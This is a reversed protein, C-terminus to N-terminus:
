RGTIEQALVATAGIDAFSGTYDAENKRPRRIAYANPNRVTTNRDDKYADHVYAPNRWDYCFESASFCASDKSTVGDGNPLASSTFSWWRASGVRPDANLANLFASNTLTQRVQERNVGFVGLLTGSNPVGLLYIADVRLQALTPFNGNGRSSQQIAYRLALGGMSNAIIRVPNGGNEGAERAIAWALRYGVHRLSTDFTLVNASSGEELTVDGAFNRTYTTSDLNRDCGTNGTYWGVTQVRGRHGVASLVARQTSWFEGCNYPRSAGTANSNYGHLLLVSSNANKAAALADSPETLREPLDLEEPEQTACGSVLYVSALVYSLLSLTSRQM